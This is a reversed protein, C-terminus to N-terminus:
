NHSKDKRKTAVYDLYTIKNRRILKPKSTTKVVNNQAAILLPETERKLHGKSLWM